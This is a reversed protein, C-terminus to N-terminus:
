NKGAAKRRREIIQRAHHRTHVLHFRRWQRVSFPGLVPHDLVAPSSGLTEGAAAFSADLESFVRDLEAVIDRYPRGQPLAMKPSARGSPFYGVTVVIFQQLAQKVTRQRVPVAGKESRRRMATASRSYTLSLHEVIGAISWKGDVAADAEDPSLDRIAAYLVGRTREIEHHVGAM